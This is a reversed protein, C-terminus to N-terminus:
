WEDGFPMVRSYRSTDDPPKPPLVAPPITPIPEGPLWFALSALEDSPPVKWIKSYEHGCGLDIEPGEDHKWPLSCLHQYIADCRACRKMTNPEGEFVQFNRVYREGPQIMRECAECLHPKRATRTEDEYVECRGDFYGSV